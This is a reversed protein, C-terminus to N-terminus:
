NEPSLLRQSWDAKQFQKDLEVGFRKKLAAALGVEKEGLFQCAIMTDFLNEVEIGFDRHLSRMDYDAGHFIKRIKPDAMVPALPSLDTVALPDVLASYDPTSFQLLCVKERYHHLSDAELDCAIVPERGLRLALEELGAQTTIMPVTTM